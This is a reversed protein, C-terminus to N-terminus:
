PSVDIFACVLLPVFPQSVDMWGERTSGTVAPHEFTLEVDGSALTTKQIAVRFWRSIQELIAPWSIYKAGM